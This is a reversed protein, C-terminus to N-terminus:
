SVLAIVIFLDDLGVRRVIGIRACLRAVVAVVTIIGLTISTALSGSLSGATEPDDYNPEPWDAPNNAM